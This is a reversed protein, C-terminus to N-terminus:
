MQTAWMQTNARANGYQITMEFFIMIQLKVLPHVLIWPIKEQSDQRLFFAKFHSFNRQFLLHEINRAFFAIDTEAIPSM